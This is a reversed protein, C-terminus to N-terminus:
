GDCIAAFTGSVEYVVGDVEALDGGGYSTGARFPEPCGTGSRTGGGGHYHYRGQTRAAAGAVRHITTSLALMVVPAWLLKRPTFCREFSTRPRARAHAPTPQDTGAKEEHRLSPPAGHGAHGDAFGSAISDDDVDVDMDADVPPDVNEGGGGGDDFSGRGAHFGHMAMFRTVNIRMIRRHYSIITLYIRCLRRTPGFHLTPLSPFYPSRSVASLFRRLGFVFGM